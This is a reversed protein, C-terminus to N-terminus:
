DTDWEDKQNKLAMVKLDRDYLKDTDKNQLTNTVLTSIYGTTPVTAGVGGDKELEPIDLNINKWTTIISFKSSSTFHTKVLM